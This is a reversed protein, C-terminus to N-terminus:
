ESVLLRAIRGELEARAVGRVLFRKDRNKEGQLLEVQSRKVGLLERLLEVLAKNARGADAPANVALKLAGNQEGMVGQKRAGPQARIPLIVGEAHDM